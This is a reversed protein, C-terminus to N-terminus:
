TPLPVLYAWRWQTWQPVIHSCKQIQKYTQTKYAKTGWKNLWCISLKNENHAALMSLCITESAARWQANKHPGGGYSPAAYQTASQRDTRGTIMVSRWTAGGLSNCHCVHVKRLRQPGCITRGDRGCLSTKKTKFKNTKSHVTSLSDISQNVSQNISQNYFLNRQLLYVELMLASNLLFLEKNNWHFKFVHRRTFNSPTPQFSLWCSSASSGSLKM